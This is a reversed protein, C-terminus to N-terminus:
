FFFDFSVHKTEPRFSITRLPRQLLMKAARKREEGSGERAVM